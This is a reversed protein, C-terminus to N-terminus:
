SKSKIPKSWNAYTRKVPDAEDPANEAKDARAIPKIGINAAAQSLGKQTLESLQAKLQKVEAALSLKKPEKTAKKGTKPKPPTASPEEEEGDEEDEGQEEDKEKDSNTEGKNYDPNGEEESEDEDGPEPEEDGSGEGEGDVPDSEPEGAKEPESGAGGAVPDSDNEDQEPDEKPAKKGKMEEDKKSATAQLLALITKQSGSIESLSAELAAVRGALKSDSFLAM